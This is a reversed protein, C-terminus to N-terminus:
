VLNKFFKAIKESIERGNIDLPMTHNSKDFWMIEVPGKVREKIWKSVIPNITQDNHSHIQLVPCTIKNLQKRAYYIMKLLQLGSKSHQFPYSFNIYKFRNPDNPNNKVTYIGFKDKEIEYNAIKLIKNQNQSLSNQLDENLEIMKLDISKLYIDVWGFLWCSFGTGFPLKLAPATTACGDVLGEGAMALAIVGGMSQGYIFVKEYNKRAYAIEDRVFQFLNNKKMKRSLQKKQDNLHKFGHGPLLPAVADIGKKFVEMAIPRTEYPTATYGHICIVIASTSSTYGNDKSHRFYFPLADAWLYNLYEEPINRFASLGNIKDVIKKTNM